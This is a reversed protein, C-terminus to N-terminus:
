ATPLCVDSMETCHATTYICRYREHLDNRSVAFDVALEVEVAGAERPELDLLATM